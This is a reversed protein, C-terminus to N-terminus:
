VKSARPINFAQQDKNIIHSFIDPCLKLDEVENFDKSQTIASIFTQPVCIEVKRIM